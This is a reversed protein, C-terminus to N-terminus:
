LRSLFRFERLKVNRVHASTRPLAGDGNADDIPVPDHPRCQDSPRTERSGASEQHCQGAGQKRERLFVVVKVCLWGVAWSGYQSERIRIHVAEMREHTLSM